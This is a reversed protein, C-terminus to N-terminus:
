AEASEAPPPDDLKPPGEASDSQQARAGRYSPGYLGVLAMQAQAEILWQTQTKGGKLFDCYKGRETHDMYEHIEGSLNALLLYLWRPYLANSLKDPRLLASTPLKHKAAHFRSHGLVEVAVKEGFAGLHRRWWNAVREPHAEGEPGDMNPAGFYGLDHTIIAALQHAKPWTGYLILWARLVFLPHLLFQHVGWLVSKTGVNM